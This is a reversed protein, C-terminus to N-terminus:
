AGRQAAAPSESPLKRYRSMVQRVVEMSGEYEPLVAADVGLKQLVAVDRDRGARAIITLDANLQRAHRLVLEATGLDALSLVLAQAQGVHAARLIEERGIDGWICELGSAQLDSFLAHNLEVVVLPVGAEKLARTILRGYRGYGAVVVHGSLATVAEPAVPQESAPTAAQFLRGLPLALKAVLTSLAMTLVTCTLALDYTPKTLFGLRSGERVLVFSFEGIQALGLGVIWPALNVYGFARTLLGTILAKGLFILIVALVIRGANAVLYRPDLLMGVTVFFMLGFIDRLPVVDTLAQHSFESESLVIGAVFAGLAFSLGVAHTAYGVGVGTAVVAVLFLEHSGWTLIWRLVKPLLRTGLFYVAALFAGASALSRLLVPGIQDLNALQPLIVLMPIVALDQVVLLGIMVRSALTSSVGGATLTKLVVMTSSVSIMSGFWIAEAVPIGLLAKSAAAGVAVTLLVQIPGGFLSIRRVPQLDGFSIELGMSFLLLAVGIEALLEIDHIQVVTPGATYPGVVIGAAVYGVLLPLRLMRAIIGGVLGALM